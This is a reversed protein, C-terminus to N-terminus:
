PKEKGKQVKHARLMTEARTEGERPEVITGDAFFITGAPYEPGPKIPKIPKIPKRKRRNYNGTAFTVTM